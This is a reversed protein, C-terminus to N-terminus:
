IFLVLFCVLIAGLIIRMRFYTDRQTLRWFFEASVLSGVSDKQNNEDCASNFAAKSLFQRLLLNKHKMKPSFTSLLAPLCQELFLKEIKSNGM